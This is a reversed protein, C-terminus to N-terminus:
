TLPENSGTDHQIDWTIRHLLSLLPEPLCTTHGSVSARSNNLPNIGQM